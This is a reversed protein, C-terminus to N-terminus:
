SWGLLNCYNVKLAQNESRYLSSLGVYTCCSARLRACLMCERGQGVGWLTKRREKRPRTVKICGSKRLIM